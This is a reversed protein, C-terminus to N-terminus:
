ERAATIVAQYHRLGLRLGETHLEELFPRVRVILGPNKAQLLVGVSGLVSLGLQSAAVRADRDDLISSRRM